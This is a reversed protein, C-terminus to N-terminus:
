KTTLKIWQNYTKEVEDASIDGDWLAVGYSLDLPAGAKLELPEKWLNITASMYSFPTAMTFFRAPRPNKPSAFMAVTVPKGDARSSYACWRAPTVQEDGRVVVADGHDKDFFFRGTKDMSEVFRMGLGYYHSGTLKATKGRVTQVRTGWDMLTPKIDPSSCTGISRDESLVPSGDPKAWLVDSRFSTWSKGRNVPASEKMWPQEVEQGCGNSEEWFNVGDVAIAFMLGHHHKHDPVSDRLIQVGGPTYLEQIYPKFARPSSKRYLLVPHGGSSASLTTKGDVIDITAAQLPAVALCAFLFFLLTGSLTDGGTGEGAPLPNPHPSHTILKWYKAGAGRGAPSPLSRWCARVNELM